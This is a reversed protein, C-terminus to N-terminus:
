FEFFLSFIIISLKDICIIINIYSMCMLCVMFFDFCVLLYCILYMLGKM